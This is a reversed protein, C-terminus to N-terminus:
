RKSHYDLYDVLIADSGEFAFVMRWNGSVSVSWLGARNGKLPHLDWGPLGMDAESNAANLTSLQRRLREAHAPQIGAKSGSRFFAELGKHRFDRIV